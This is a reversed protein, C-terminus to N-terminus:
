RRRLVLVRYSNRLRVEDRERLSDKLTASKQKHICACEAEWYRSLAAQILDGIEQDLLVFEDGLMVERLDLVVRGGSKTVRALELLVENMYERWASLSKQCWLRSRLGQEELEAFWFKLWLGALPDEGGPLPPGSVVLDVSSSPVFSLDRADAQCLRNYPATQRLVSPLGDRVVMAAKRLLRPVVSRYDPNLGRKNNIREQQAPALAIQPFSFVSFYGATHGHLLSLAILEIFRATRDDHAHLVSRLNVLERFTDIDYFPSFVKRYQEIGIPRNLTVGQLWLTVEPIDVPELKARAIKMALPNADSAYAVRGGLNAELATTGSGCFPDLVTEGRRSYKRVFHAALEPPFSEPYSIAYHLAHASHGSDSSWLEAEETYFSPREVIRLAARPM